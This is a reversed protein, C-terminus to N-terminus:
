GGINQQCSIEWSIDVLLPHTHGKLLWTRDRIFSYIYAESLQFFFM